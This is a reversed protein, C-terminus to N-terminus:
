AFLGANEPPGQQPGAMLTLAHVYREFALQWRKKDFGRPAGLLLAQLRDLCSEWGAADRAATAPDDFTHTFVLRCGDGLAHLMWRLSAEGWIYELV